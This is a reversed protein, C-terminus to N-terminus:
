RTRSSTLLEQLRQSMKEVMDPHMEALNTQQGIDEGLHYLQAEPSNGLEIGTNPAVSHGPYPPIYVWDGCRLITKSGIGELILEERGVPDKGLLAPLMNLSDPAATEELPQDLLAAFSALFDVQCVVASSRGPKVVGPWSLIFPVRTGGDYLSYKGGRLPGAPRHDGNLGVAQDQYGDDLVPGNDSTFIVITNERLGEQKLVDLLQGVCWDLEMIVDGRPGLASKGAFRPGPVRPVHPQHLAYYLFFPRDKHEKVFSVAKSLFVEAMTEDDWLAARGGRMYGIRGIGNIITMDHGHSHKLRLLEPHDRGTPVEPFPNEKGYWVEIPDSPDLGVVRRGEIYVCPVRDNTAPMIFSYDFGVDLPGPKIERNYNVNGAGLGLHWKGVVGTAYGAAQLMRPLTQSGPPIIMPADGPLMQAGKNRWPYAGTLLSYRSPTCTAATAYGQTFVLGERALQDLHPTPIRTAGYCGVDGYGLDDAYIIVVNPRKSQTYM